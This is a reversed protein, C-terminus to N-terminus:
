ALVLGIVPKSLHLQEKFFVPLLSFMQLFCLASLFIFFTFRLYVEDRWASAPDGNSKVDEKIRRTVPPLAARMLIAALMCTIGDAWFLYRFAVLGGIAPGISFGLNIALRNLSYSRTRNGPLSYYAIAAANAPRFSEGVVGVVFMCSGIQWFTQLQGLVIFLVGNLFLSWFQVPYFGIKDTLKGGVFNGLIAGMGFFGLEWGAAAISYNMEERLYVTLFPLVMTGARNVFMVLALWWTSVSLGTYANRYVAFSSKIV